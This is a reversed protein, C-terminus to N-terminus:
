EKGENKKIFANIATLLTTTAMDVIGQNAEEHDYIAQVSSITSKLADGGHINATISNKATNAADLAAKLNTKDISPM